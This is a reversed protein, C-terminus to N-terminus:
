DRRKRIVNPTPAEPPISSKGCKTCIFEEKQTYNDLKYGRSLMIQPPYTCQCLKYGLVKAIQAEALKAAKDAEELSYEIAQKNTSDPFLDKTEKALGIAQSFLSLGTKIGEIANSVDDM